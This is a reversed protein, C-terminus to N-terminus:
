RRPAALLRFLARIRREVLADSAAEVYLRLRPETSSARLLAFGDAFALRLGDGASAERVAAGGVRQPPDRRLADLATARAPDGPASVRRWATAGVARELERLRARLPRRSVAAHEALLAGALIGDKDRSFSGLCFGGSEDGAADAAGDALADALRRFGMGGAIVPLGHWAAVRAVFSGTAASLAIGRRIRGSRVGHDVLLALLEHEGLVRGDSDVAALRDGDGDTALGLAPSGARAARRTAACLAGLRAPTPDPAAGGFGPDVDGHLTAVRAGVRRLAEDLFGAAAGHLADFVVCPRARRLTDRDLARDLAALYPEGLSVSRARSAPAAPSRTTALALDALAEVRRTSEGDFSAGDPGFLKLGHDEPPNHSATFVLAAAVRRRRAGFAVVPTPAAGEAQLVRLGEAELRAAATAVLQAGLFRRDHALLVPGKAGRERLLAAVAAAAADVRALTIEGALPGRWGGSGFRIPPAASAPPAM